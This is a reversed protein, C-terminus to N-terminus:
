AGFPFMAALDRAYGFFLKPVPLVLDDERLGLVGQAYGNYSALPSRATHVCAKPKGTSGTTFKWLAIDDPGIPAPALTTAQKAVLSAFDVEGERLGNADVGIVLLIPRERTSQLAERLREITTDDAVVVAAGTYDVYYAYDKPQLFTYVEATVAGIKQVAYWTAVFEASDALALLVRQHSQVGLELLANGVRNTLTALEAYTTAGAPGVLAPHEGRGELLNRDLFVTALNPGPEIGAAVRVVRARDRGAPPDSRGPAPHAHGPDGGGRGGDGRRSSRLLRPGHGDRPLRDPRRGDGGAHEARLRPPPAHDRVGRAGATHGPGPLDRLPRRPLRREPVGPDAATGRGPPHPRPAGGQRGRRRPPPDLGPGARLSQQRDGPSPIGPSAPIRLGRRRDCPPHGRQDHRSGHVGGLIPDRRLRDRPAGARVRHQRRLAGASGARLDGDLHRFRHRAARAPRSTRCRRGPAAAGAHPRHRAAGACAAVDPRRFSDVCAHQRRWM